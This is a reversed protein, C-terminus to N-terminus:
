GPFAECLRAEDASPLDLEDDTAVTVGRSWRSPTLADTRAGCRFVPSGEHSNHDRCETERTAPRTKVPPGRARCSWANPANEGRRM